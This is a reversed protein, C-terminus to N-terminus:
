GGALQFRTLLELTKRQLDSWQDVRDAAFSLEVVVDEGQMFRYRCHHLIELSEAATVRTCRLWGRASDPLRYTLYDPDEAIEYAALGALDFEAAPKAQNWDPRWWDSGREDVGTLTIRLIKPSAAALFDDISERRIPALDSLSVKLRAVTAGGDACDRADVLYTCPILYRWGGVVVRVPQRDFTHTLGFGMGPYRAEAWADDESLAEPPVGVFMRSAYYLGRLRDPGAASGDDDLSFGCTVLIWRTGSALAEFLPERYALYGAFSVALLILGALLWRFRKSNHDIM